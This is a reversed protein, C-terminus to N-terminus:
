RRPGRGYALAGGSEGFEIAATARGDGVFTPRRDLKSTRASSAPGSDLRGRGRRKSSSPPPIRSPIGVDNPEIFLGWERLFELGVRVRLRIGTDDTPFARANASSPCGGTVGRLALLSDTTKSPSAEGDNEPDYRGGGDGFRRALRVGPPVVM